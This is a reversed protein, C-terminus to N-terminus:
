RKWLINLEEADLHISCKNESEVAIYNHVSPRFNSDKLDTYGILQNQLAMILEEKIYRKKGAEQFLQKLEDELQLALNVLASYRAQEDPDIQFGEKDMGEYQYLKENVQSGTSEQVAFQNKSGNEKEVVQTRIITNANESVGPVETDRKFLLHNIEYRFCTLVVFAYYVVLSIAILYFYTQWSISSLM